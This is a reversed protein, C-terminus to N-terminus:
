RPGNGSAFPSLRGGGLRVLRPAGHRSAAPLEEISHTQGHRLSAHTIRDDPRRRATAGASRACDVRLVSRKQRSPSSSTPQVPRVWTRSPSIGVHDQQATRRNRRRPGSRGFCGLIDNRAATHDVSADALRGARTPTTPGVRSVRCDTRTIVDPPRATPRSPWAVDGNTKRTRHCRVWHFSLQKAWPLPPPAKAAKVRAQPKGAAALRKTVYRSVGSDPTIPM